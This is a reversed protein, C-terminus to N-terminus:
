DKKDVINGQDDVFFTNYQKLEDIITKVILKKTKPAIM